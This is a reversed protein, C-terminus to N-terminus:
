ESLFAGLKKDYKKVIKKSNKFKSVFNVLFYRYKVERYSASVFNEGSNQRFKAFFTFRARSSAQTAPQM